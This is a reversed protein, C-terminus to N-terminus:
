IGVGHARLADTIQPATERDPDIQVASWGRALAADINEVRDDFFLIEDGAAELRQEAAEYIAPDPKRLGLEHSALRHELLMVSPFEGIRAWHDGNTNSLAATCLGLERLRAVIPQVDAYEGLLWAHLIVMIEGPGYAGDLHVSLRRTFEAGDLRGTQHAIHLDDPIPDRRGREHPVPRCDLGAARCGEEWTRCTRILVGGLDFCILSPM